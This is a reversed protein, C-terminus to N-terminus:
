SGPKTKREGSKEPNESKKKRVAFKAPDIRKAVETLIVEWDLQKPTRPDFDFLEQGAKLQETKTKGTLAPYRAEAVLASQRVIETKLKRGELGCGWLTTQGYSRNVAASSSKLGIKQKALHRVRARKEDTLAAARLSVTRKEHASALGTRSEGSRDGSFGGRQFRNPNNKWLSCITFLM